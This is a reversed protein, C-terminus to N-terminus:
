YEGTFFWKIQIKCPLYTSIYRYRNNLYRTGPRWTGSGSGLWLPVEIVMVHVHAVLWLKVIQVRRISFELQEYLLAISSIQM